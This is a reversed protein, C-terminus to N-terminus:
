VKKPALPGTAAPALSPHIIGKTAAYFQEAELRYKRYTSEIKNKSKGWEKAVIAVALYLKKEKELCQVVAVAVLLDYYSKLVPHGHFQVHRASPSPPSFLQMLVLRIEPPLPERSALVEILARRGEAEDEAAGVLFFLAKTRDSDESM